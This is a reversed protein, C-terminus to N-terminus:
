PCGAGLHQVLPVIDSLNVVGDYHLDSRFNYTGGFFDQAFLPVDQLNVELDGNLDPSNVQLPLGDNTFVPGGWILLRVPGQSHGGARLPLAFETSGDALTLHDACLAGGCAAVSGGSWTLTLGATAVGPEPLGTEDRALVRITADVVHGALSRAQSLPPGSGDPVVLITAPPAFGAPLRYETTYPSPVGWDAAAPTAVGSLLNFLASALAFSVASASLCLIGIAPRCRNM